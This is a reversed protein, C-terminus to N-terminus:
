AAGGDGSVLKAEGHGVKSIDVGDGVPEGDPGRLATTAMQPGPTPTKAKGRKAPKDGAMPVAVKGGNARDPAADGVPVITDLFAKPPAVDLYIVEGAKFQLPANATGLYLGKRQVVGDILAKRGAYQTDNLGIKEGAGIHGVGSEVRYPFM